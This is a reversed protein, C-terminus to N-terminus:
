RVTPKMVGQYPQFSCNPSPPFLHVELEPGLDPSMWLPLLKVQPLFFGTFPCAISLKAEVGPGLGFELNLDM